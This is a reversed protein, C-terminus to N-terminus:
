GREGRWSVVEVKYMKWRMSYLKMERGVDSNLHGGGFGGEEAGETGVGEPGRAALLFDVQEDM